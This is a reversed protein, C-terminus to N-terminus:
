RPSVAPQAPQTIEKMVGVDTVQITWTLKFQKGDPGQNQFGALTQEVGPMVALLTQFEYQHPVSLNTFNLKMEVIHAESKDKHSDIKVQLDFRTVDNLRVTVKCLEDLPIVLRPASTVAGNDDLRLQITATPVTRSTAPQTAAADAPQTASPPSGPIGQAQNLLSPELGMGAILAM